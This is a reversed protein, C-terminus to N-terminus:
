LILNIRFFYYNIGFVWNKYRFGWLLVYVIVLGKVYVRRCRFMCKSVMFVSGFEEGDNNKYVM